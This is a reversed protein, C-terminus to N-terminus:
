WVRELDLLAHGEMELTGAERVVIPRTFLPGDFAFSHYEGREGCPDVQPSEELSRLFVDDIERGLWERRGQKLDVSVIRARHGRRVFEAVLAAPPEGWLPEVHRFGRAHTREEYWARVDALHINGFVIGTVELSRLEDLAALFAKEFDDPHTHRQVLGLGLAKAQGEILERRVGHFRVRGSSGEYINLLYRVDLGQQRARDLALTSDKGGSWALAYAPAASASRQAPRSAEATRPRAATATRSVGLDFQCGWAGPAM